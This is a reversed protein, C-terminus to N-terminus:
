ESRRQTTTSPYDEPSTAPQALIERQRTIVAQYLDAPVVERVAQIFAQQNDDHRLRKIRPSLVSLRNSFTQLRLGLRTIALKDGEAKAAILENETRTKELLLKARESLCEQLGLNEASPILDDEGIYASVPPRVEIVRHKRQLSASARKYM